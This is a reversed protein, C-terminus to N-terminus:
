YNFLPKLQFAKSYSFLESCALTMPRYTNRSASTGYAVDNSSQLVTLLNIWESSIVSRKFSHYPLFPPVEAQSLSRAAMGGRFGQCNAMMELLALFRM